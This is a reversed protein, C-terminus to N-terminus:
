KSVSKEAPLSKLYLYMAQLEPDSMQALESWPMEGDPSTRAASIFTRQSWASAIGGPTLNPALPSGPAPSHGGSLQKGHCDRCGGLRVLYGGYEVSVGAVVVPPRPGSHDIVEAPLAADGFAGATFLVTGITNLKTEGLEHDVPPLSKLYAIMAGLDQDNTYYYNESPMGLLARGEPDVGFRLARTWDADSFESGAGGKGPTLNSAPIYGVSPDDLIVKGSFDQGHCHACLRTILRQGQQIAAEDTPVIVAEPQIDYHRTLRANGMAYMAIVLLGALIILGGLGIGIWKLTKALM